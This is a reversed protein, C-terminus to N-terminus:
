VRVLTGLCFAFSLIALFGGIQYYRSCPPPTMRSALSLATSVDSGSISIVFTESVFCQQCEFTEADFGPKEPEILRLLM